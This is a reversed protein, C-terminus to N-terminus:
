WAKREFAKWDGTRRDFLAEEDSPARFVEAKPGFGWLEVLPGVTIDFAGGTAKNLDQAKKIVKLTDASVHVPAKDALSNIR